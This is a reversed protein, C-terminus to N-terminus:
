TFEKVGELSQAITPPISSSHKVSTNQNIDNVM